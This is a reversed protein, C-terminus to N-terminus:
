RRIRDAFVKELIDRILCEMMCKKRKSDMADYIEVLEVTSLDEFDEIDELASNSKGLVNGFVELLVNDEPDMNQMDENYESWEDSVNSMGKAFAGLAQSASIDTM